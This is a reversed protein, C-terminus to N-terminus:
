NREATSSLFQYYADEARRDSYREIARARAAQGRVQLADRGLMLATRLTEAMSRADSDTVFGTEGVRYYEGGGFSTDVLLQLEAETTITNAIDLRSEDAHAVLYIGLTVLVLCFRQIQKLM